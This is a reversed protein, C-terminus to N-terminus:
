TSPFKIGLIRAIEESSANTLGHPIEKPSEVMSDTKFVQSQEGIDIKISGELVYFVVNEPTKHSSLVANPKLTIYAVTGEEEVYLRRPNVEKGSAAEKAKDIITYKMRVGKTYCLIFVMM